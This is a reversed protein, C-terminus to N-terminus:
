VAGSRGPAVLLTAQSDLHERLLLRQQRDFDGRADGVDAQLLSLAEAGALGLHLEIAGYGLGLGVLGLGLELRRM